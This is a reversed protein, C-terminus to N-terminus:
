RDDIAEKLNKKKKIMWVTHACMYARTQQSVSLITLVSRIFYVCFACVFYFHEYIHFKLGFVSLLALFIFKKFCIPSSSLRRSTFLSFFIMAFVFCVWLTCYSHQLSFQRSFFFFFIWCSTDVVYIYIKTFVYICIYKSKMARCIFIKM